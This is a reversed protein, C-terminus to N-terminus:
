LLAWDWKEDPSLEIIVILYLKMDVPIDGAFLKSFVLLLCAFIVKM